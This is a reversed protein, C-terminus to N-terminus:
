SYLKYLTIFLSLSFITLTIKTRNDRTLKIGLKELFPDIVTYNSNSLYREIKTIICGNCFYFLTIVIILLVLLIELIVKENSLWGFYLFLMLLFHLFLITRYIIKIKFENKKIKINTNDM